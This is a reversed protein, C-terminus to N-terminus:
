KEASTVLMRDIYPRGFNRSIETSKKSRKKPAPMLALLHAWELHELDVDHLIHIGTEGYVYRLSPLLTLHETYAMGLQIRHQTLPNLSAWDAILVQVRDRAKVLGFSMFVMAVSLLARAHTACLGFDDLPYHPSPLFCLVKMGRKLPFQEHFSKAVLQKRAPKQISYLAGSNLGRPVGRWFSESRRQHLEPTAGLHGCSRNGV